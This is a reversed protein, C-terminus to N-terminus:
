FELSIYVLSAANLHRYVGGLHVEMERYQGPKLSRGALGTNGAALLHGEADFVAMALSPTISGDTGNSVLVRGRNAEQHRTLLGTLGKPARLQVREVRVGNVDLGVKVWEGDVFDVKATGTNAPVVVPPVPEDARAGGTALLAPAVVVGVAVALGLFARAKM